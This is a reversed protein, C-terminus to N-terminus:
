AILNAWEEPLPDCTYYDRNDHLYISKYGHLKLNSMDMAGSDHLGLTINVGWSLLPMIERGSFM